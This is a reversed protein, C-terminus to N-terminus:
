VLSEELLSSAPTMMFYYTVEPFDRGGPFGAEALLMQAREPDYGLAIGASYGPMAAPLFGGTVLEQSRVRGSAMGRAVDTAMAFAQRV